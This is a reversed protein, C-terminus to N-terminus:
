VGISDFLWLDGSDVICTTAMEREIFPYDLRLDRFWVFLKQHFGGNLMMQIEQNQVNVMSSFPITFILPAFVTATAYQAFTNGGERQARWAYGTEQNTERNEWLQQTEQIMEAGVTLLMWVAFVSSYLIKKWTPMQKGSALVISGVLAAALVGALATRFTFMVLIILGPLLINRLTIKPSHLSLDARETFLIVLFAMETEKLTIGCYFWMNPMLMCFIAAMRGVTEGFNRKALNYVLVCAFADIFCKLIRAPLVHTGLLLYEIGLWVYYGRDSFAYYTLLVDWFTDFGYDHWKEALMQYDLEDGAHYGHPEGTMEIYYFYMFVVYVIRIVMATIFLKQMFPRTSFRRWGM